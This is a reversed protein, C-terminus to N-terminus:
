KIAQDREQDLDERPEYQEGRTDSDVPEESCDNVLERTILQKTAKTRLGVKCSLIEPEWNAKMGYSQSRIMSETISQNSHGIKKYCLAFTDLKSVGKGAQMQTTLISHSHELVEKPHM